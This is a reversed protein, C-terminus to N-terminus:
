RTVLFRTGHPWLTDVRDIGIEWLDRGCPKLTAVYNGFRSGLLVITKDRPLQHEYALILLIGEQATCHRRGMEEVDEIILRTSLSFGRPYEFFVVTRSSGAPSNDWTEDEIIEPEVFCITQGHRGRLGDLTISNTPVVIFSNRGIRGSLRSTDSGRTETLEQWQM